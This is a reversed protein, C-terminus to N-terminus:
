RGADATYTDILRTLIKVNRDFVEAARLVTGSTTADLRLIHAWGAIANLPTRLDHSMQHRQERDARHETQLSAQLVTILSVLDARTEDPLDPLRGIAEELEALKQIAGGQAVSGRHEVRIV